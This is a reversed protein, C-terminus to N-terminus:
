CLSHKQSPVAHGLFTMNQQLINANHKHTATMQRVIHWRFYSQLMFGDTLTNFMRHLAQLVCRLVEEGGDQLRNIFDRSYLESSTAHIHVEWQSVIANHGQACFITTFLYHNNHDTNTNINNVFTIITAYDWHSSRHRVTAYSIVTVRPPAWIYFLLSDCVCGFSVSM